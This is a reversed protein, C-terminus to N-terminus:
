SSDMIFWSIETPKKENFEDMWIWLRIWESLFPLAGTPRQGEGAVRTGRLEPPGSQVLEQAHSLPAELCSKTFWKTTM